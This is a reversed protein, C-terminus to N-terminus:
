IKSYKIEYKVYKKKYQYEKMKILPLINCTNLLMITNNIWGEITSLTKYNYYLLRNFFKPPIDYGANNLERWILSSYSQNPIHSIHKIADNYKLIREILESKIEGDENITNCSVNTKLDSNEERLKYKTKNLKIQLNNKEMINIVHDLDNPSRLFGIDNSQQNDFYFGFPDCSPLVREKHYLYPETCWEIANSIITTYCNIDLKHLNEMTFEGFEKLKQPIVALRDEYSKLDTTCFKYANDDLSFVTENFFFKTPYIALLLSLVKNDKLLFNNRLTEILMILEFRSLKKNKEIINNDVMYKFLLFESIGVKDNDYFLNFVRGIFHHNYFISNSMFFELIFFSSFCYEEIGYEYESKWQNMHTAYGWPRHIKLPLENELNLLFIMGLSQKYAEFPIFNDDNTFNVFQVIGAIAAQIVQSNNVKCLTKDHWGTRYDLSAPLFFLRNKKKGCIKNLENIWKFDNYGLSNTHADRWVLHSARNIKVDNWIYAKQISSMYRTAQGIYGNTIHGENVKGENEIFPGKFKYVFFDGTKDRLIYQGLEIISRCAIDYYFLIRTLGNEFQYDEYQKIEKYYNILLFNISEYEFNAFDYHEFKNLHKTVKLREDNGDFSEFKKLMYYDLYTRYNANPFFFNILLIQKFHNQLYKAIWQAYSEEDLKNNPKFLSVSFTVSTDDNPKKLINIAYRYLEFYEKQKKIPRVDKDNIEKQKDFINNKIGKKESYIHQEKILINQKNTLCYKRMECNAYHNKKAISYLKIFEDLWNHHTVILIKDGNTHMRIIKDIFLHINDALNDKTVTFNDDIASSDYTNGNRVVNDNIFKILEEKKIKRDCIMNYCCEGLLDDLVITNNSIINDTTQITRRLPSSYIKTINLSKVKDYVEKCEAIGKDTLLPDQFKIDSNDFTNTEFALNHLGHGHRVFYLNICNYTEPAPNAYSEPDPNAYSEPAPNAYNEPAPNVYNQGQNAFNTDREQKPPFIVNGQIILDTHGFNTDHEEKVVKIFSSM